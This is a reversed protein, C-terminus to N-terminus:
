TSSGDTSSLVNDCTNCNTAVDSCNKCLRQTLNFFGGVGCDDCRLDVGSLLTCSKCQPIKASCYECSKKTINYYQGTGCTTSNEPPSQCTGTTLNLFLGLICTTCHTADVCTNCASNCPICQLKVKDAYHTPPCVTVCQKTQTLITSNAVLM